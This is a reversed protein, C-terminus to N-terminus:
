NRLPRPIVELCDRYVHTQINRDSTLMTKPSKIDAISKEVVSNKFKPHSSVVLLHGRGGYVSLRRVHLSASPLPPPPPSPHQHQFKLLQENM